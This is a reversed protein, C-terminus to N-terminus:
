GPAWDGRPPVTGLAHVENLRPNRAAVRAIRERGAANIVWGDTANGDLLGDRQLGTVIGAIGASQAQAATIGTESAAIMPLVKDREAALDHSAANFKALTDEEIKWLSLRAAGQRVIETFQDEFTGPQILKVVNDNSVAYREKPSSTSADLMGM